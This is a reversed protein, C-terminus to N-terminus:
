EHRFKSSLLKTRDPLAGAERYAELLAGSAPGMAPASVLCGGLELLATYRHLVVRSEFVGGIYSCAVPSSDPRDDLWLQRSVSQALLALSQAANALLHQAISDGEAALEDVHVALRAVRSRPWAPTYFLHLAANMDVCGTAALFMDRLRSGDGWGEEARLCARLAQRVIDFAGGEDGFVYGWGGARRVGGQPARGMAISGTGAIAIVGPEGELAGSLAILADDTILWRRAPVAQKLVAIKDEPGGSMGFCAAEFIDPVAIGASECAATVCQRVVRELKSAAEAGSTHNCPGGTGRGLVDGDANAILATTGSQGGDVGLFLESM